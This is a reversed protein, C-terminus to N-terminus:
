AGPQEGGYNGDIPMVLIGKSEVPQAEQELAERIPASSSTWLDVRERRRAEAERGLEELEQGLRWDAYITYLGRLFLYVVAGLLLLPVSLAIITFFLEKM